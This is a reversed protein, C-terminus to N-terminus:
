DHHSTRPRSQFGALLTLRAIPQVWTAGPPTEATWRTAALRAANAGCLWRPADPTAGSLLFHGGALPALVGRRVRLGSTLEDFALETQDLWGDLELKAGFRDAFLRRARVELIERNAQALNQAAALSALAHRGTQSDLSSGSSASEDLLVQRGYGVSGARIVLALEAKGLEGKAYADVPEVKWLTLERHGFGISGMAPAGAIRADASVCAPDALTLAPEEFRTPISNGRAKSRIGQAGHRAVADLMPVTWVPGASAGAIAALGLDHSIEGRRRKALRAKLGRVLAVRTGLGPEPALPGVDFRAHGDLEFSTGFPVRSGGVLPSFGVVRSVGPLRALDDLAELALPEAHQVGDAAPVLEPRAGDVLADADEDFPIVACSLRNPSGRFARM